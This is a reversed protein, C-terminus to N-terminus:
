TLLVPAINALKQRPLYRPIRVSGDCNLAEFHPVVLVARDVTGMRPLITNKLKDYLTSSPVFDM